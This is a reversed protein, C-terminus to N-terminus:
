YYLMVEIEGGRGRRKEKLASACLVCLVLALTFFACM